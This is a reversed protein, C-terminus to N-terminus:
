FKNLATEFNQIAKEVRKVTMAVMKLHERAREPLGQLLTRLRQLGTASSLFAHSGWFDGRVAFDNM